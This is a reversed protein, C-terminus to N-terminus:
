CYKPFSVYIYRIFILLFRYHGGPGENVGMKVEVVVMELGEEKKGEKFSTQGLIVTIHSQQRFYLVRIYVNRM